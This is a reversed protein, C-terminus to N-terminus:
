RNKDFAKKVVKEIHSKMVKEAKDEREDVTKIVEDAIRQSVTKRKRGSLCWGNIRAGDPYVKIVQEFIDATTIDKFRKNIKVRVINGKSTGINITAM